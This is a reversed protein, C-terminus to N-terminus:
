EGLSVQWREEGNRDAYGITTWSSGLDRIIVSVHSCTNVDELRAKRFLLFVRNLPICLISSFTSVCIPQSHQRLHLV